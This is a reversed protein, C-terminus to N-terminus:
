KVKLLIVVFIMFLSFAAVICSIASLVKWKDIPQLPEILEGEYPGFQSQMIREPFQHQKTEQDSVKEVLPFPM